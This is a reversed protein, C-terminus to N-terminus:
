KGGHEFNRGHGLERDGYTALSAVSTYVYLM